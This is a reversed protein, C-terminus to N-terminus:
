AEGPSPLRPDSEREMDAIAAATDSVARDWHENREPAAMVIGDDLVFSMEFPRLFREDGALDSVRPHVKLVPDGAFLDPEHMMADELAWWTEEGGRRSEHILLGFLARFSGDHNPLMEKLGEMVEIGFRRVMAAANLPLAFREIESM